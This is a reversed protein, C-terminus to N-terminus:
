TKESHEELMTITENTMQEVVDRMTAHDVFDSYRPEIEGYENLFHKVFVRNLKEEFMGKDITYYDESPFELEEIREEYKELELELSEADLKALDRENGFWGERLDIKNILNRIFENM